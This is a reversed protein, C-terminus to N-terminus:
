GKQRSLHELDSGAGGCRAFAALLDQEAAAFATGSWDALRHHTVGNLQGNETFLELVLALSTPDVADGEQTVYAADLRGGPLDRREDRPPQLAFAVQPLTNPGSPLKGREALISLSVETPMEQHTLAEAMAEKTLRVLHAATTGGPRDVTVHVSNAFCGVTGETGALGRNSTQIAAAPTDDGTRRATFDLVASLLVVFLTTDCRAALARLARTLHADVTFPRARSIFSRARGSAGAPSLSPTPSRRLSARMADLHAELRDSCLTAHQWETFDAYDMALPPRASAEGLRCAYAHALDDVFLGQSMGDFVIHHFVSVLVWAREGTRALVFRAAPGAGTLDFGRLRERRVRARLAPEGGDRLDAETVDPGIDAFRQAPRGDHVGFVLRLASQRSVTDELAGRLALVDIDGTFRLVGVNNFLGAGGTAANMKHLARQSLALPFWTRRRRRAVDALSRRPAVPAARLEHIVRAVAAPSADRYLEAFPIRVGYEKGLLALARTALASDGGLQFFSEHEACAPVNLLDCFVAGVTTAVGDAM